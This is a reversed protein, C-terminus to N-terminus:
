REGEPQPPKEGGAWVLFAGKAAEPTARKRRQQLAGEAQSRFVASSFLRIRQRRM